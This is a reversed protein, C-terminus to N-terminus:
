AAARGDHRTAVRAARRLDRETLGCWLGATWFDRQGVFRGAVIARVSPPADALAIEMTALRITIFLRLVCLIHTRAEPTLRAGM